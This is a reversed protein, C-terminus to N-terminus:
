AHRAIKHVQPNFSLDEPKWLLCKVVSGDDIGLGSLLSGDIEEEQGVPSSTKSQLIHAEIARLSILVSPSM